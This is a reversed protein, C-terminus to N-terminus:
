TEEEKLWIITRQDKRIHEMCKAQNCISTDKRFFACNVGRENFCRLKTVPYASYVEGTTDDTFKNQDESLAM